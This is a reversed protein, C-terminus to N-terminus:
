IEGKNAEEFPEDINVIRTGPIHKTTDILKASEVIGLKYEILTKQSGSECDKHADYDLDLIANWHERKEPTCLENQIHAYINAFRKRELPSLEQYGQKELREIEEEKQKIKSMISEKYQMADDSGKKANAKARSKNIESKINSIISKDHWDEIKQGFLQDCDSQELFEVLNEQIRKPDDYVKHLLVYFCASLVPFYLASLFHLYQKCMNLNHYHIDVFVDEPNQGTILLMGTPVSLGLFQTQVKHDYSLVNVVIDCYVKKDFINPVFFIPILAPLIAHDIDLMNSTVTSLKQLLYVITDLDFLRDALYMAIWRDQIHAKYEKPDEGEARKRYYLDDLRQYFDQNIFFTQLRGYFNDLTKTSYRLPVDKTQATTPLDPLRVGLSKLFERVRAQEEEHSKRQANKAAELLEQQNGAYPNNKITKLLLLLFHDMFKPLKCNTNNQNRHLGWFDSYISPMFVDSMSKSLNDDDRPMNQEPIKERMDDFFEFFSSHFDEEGNEQISRKRIHFLGDIALYEHNHSQPKLLIPDDQAKLGHFFRQDTVAGQKESQPKAMKTIAGNCMKSALDCIDQISSSKKLPDMEEKEFTIGYQSQLIEELHEPDTDHSFFDFFNKM